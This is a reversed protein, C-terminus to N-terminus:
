SAMTTPARQAPDGVAISRARRPYLVRTTSRACKGLSVTDVWRM